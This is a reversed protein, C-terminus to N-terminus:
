EDCIIRYVITNACGRSDTHVAPYLQAQRFPQLGLVEEHRRVDRAPLRTTEGAARGGAGRAVPDPNLRPLVLPIDSAQTM